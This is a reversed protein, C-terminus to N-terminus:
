RRCCDSDAIFRAHVGQRVTRPMVLRTVDGRTYLAARYACRERMVSEVLAGDAQGDHPAWAVPFNQLSHPVDSAAGVHREHPFRKTAPARNQLSHPVATAADAGAVANLGSVRGVGAGLPVRVAVNAGHTAAPVTKAATTPYKAKLLAGGAPEASSVAEAM